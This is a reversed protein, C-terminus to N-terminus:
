ELLCDIKGDLDECNSLEDFGNFCQCSGDMCVGNGNCCNGCAAIIFILLNNSGFSNIEEHM